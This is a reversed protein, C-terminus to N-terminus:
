DHHFNKSSSASLDAFPLNSPCFQESREESSLRQEPSSQALILSALPHFLLPALHRYQRPLSNIDKLPESSILLETSGNTIDFRCRENLSHSLELESDTGLVESQDVNGEDGDNTSLLLCFRGLSTDPIKSTETEQGIQDAEQCHAQACASSWIAHRHSSGSNVAVM